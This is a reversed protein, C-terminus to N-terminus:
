ALLGCQFVQYCTSYHCILTFAQAHLFCIFNHKSKYICSRRSNLSFMSTVPQTSDSNSVHGHGLHYPQSYITDQCHFNPLNLDTSEPRAIFYFNIEYSNGEQRYSSLPNNRQFKLSLIAKCDLSLFASFAVTSHGPIYM